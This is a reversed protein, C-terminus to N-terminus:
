RPKLATKLVDATNDAAELAGELYGGFQPAVETGSFLIKGDWIPSLPHYTPHAYLPKLDDATSTYPDFAWDKVLLEKPHAAKPGFLRGLQQKLATRLANENKRGEPPVGIFGFIAFPGGTEPSADHMEVMPGFRSSADGSLGDERWFPSDYVAVAKAQGAMWTPVNALSSLTDQFLAPEFKITTGVVRPPLAFVVHKALYTQGNAHVEVGNPRQVVKTVPSGTTISKAPLAQQLAQVMAALGGKLRYSGEMSSFGRDRQVAGNQDEFSLAGESYQEFVPLSFRQILAAIRPQGEWFWTPGMDFDGNEVPMSLIRGGIRDRSELVQIHIGNQVLLNALHLGSLGAGVVIVDTQSIDTNQELNIEATVPQQVTMAQLMSPRMLIPGIYWNTFAMQPTNQLAGLKFPRPLANQGQGCMKLTAIEPIVSLVSTTAPNRVM